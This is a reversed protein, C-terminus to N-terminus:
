KWLFRYTPRAGLVLSVVLFWAWHTQIVWQTFAPWIAIIFLTFFVASWKTLAVDAVDLNKMKQQFTM